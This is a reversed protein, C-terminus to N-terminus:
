TKDECFEKMLCVLKKQLEFDMAKWAKNYRIFFDTKDQYVHGLPVLYDENPVKKWIIIIFRGDVNKYKVFFGLDIVKSSFESIDM